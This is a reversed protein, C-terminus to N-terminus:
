SSAPRVFLLVNTPRRRSPYPRGHRRFGLRQLTRHMADNSAISTAFISTPGVRSVLPETLRHSLGHRRHDGSVVVWGLEYKYRGARESSAAAAFARRVRHAGPKKLAAVGVIMDSQFAFSLLEAQAIREPLGDSDVEGAARVLDALRTLENQSCAAPQKVV